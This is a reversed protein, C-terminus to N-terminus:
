VNAVGDEWGRRWSRRGRGGRWWWGVEYVGVAAGAEEGEGEGWVKGFYGADLEGGVRDAERRVVRLEISERM